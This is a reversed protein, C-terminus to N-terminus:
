WTYIRVEIDGSGDANIPLLTGTATLWVPTDTLPTAVIGVPYGVRQIPGCIFRSLLLTRSGDPGTVSYGAVDLLPSYECVKNGDGHTIVADQTTVNGQTTQYTASRVRLEAIDTGLTAFHERVRNTIDDETEAEASVAHTPAADETM